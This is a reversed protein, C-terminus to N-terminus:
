IKERHLVKAGSKQDQEVDRGGSWVRGVIVKTIDRM